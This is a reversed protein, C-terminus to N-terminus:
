KVLRSIAKFTDTGATRTLEFLLSEVGTVVASEARMRELARAM